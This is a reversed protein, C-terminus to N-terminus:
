DKCIKYNQYVPTSSDLHYPEHDGFPQKIGIEHLKNFHFKSNDYLQTEDKDHDSITNMTSMKYEFYNIRSVIM